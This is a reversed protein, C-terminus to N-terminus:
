PYLAPEGDVARSENLAKKFAALEQEAARLQEPDSTADQARWRALLELTATDVSGRGPAEAPRPMTPKRLSTQKM